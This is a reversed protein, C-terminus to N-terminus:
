LLERGSEDRFLGHDVTFRRPLSTSSVTMAKTPDVTVAHATDVPTLIVPRGIVNDVGPYVGNGLLLSQDAAVFPYTTPGGLEEGHVELIVSSPLTGTGLDLLFSGDSGTVTSEPLFEVDVPVGALPRGADDLVVGSLRTTTVPDPAVTLTVDQTTQKAGDSAGLTLNYTGVESPTPTFVLTGDSQLNATPLPGSSSLSFHVPDGDSDTAQLAVKLYGGPMVSLPGVPTFVPGADPGASSVQPVLAFRVQGPDSFTM